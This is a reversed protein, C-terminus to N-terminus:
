VYLGAGVLQGLDGPAMGAPDDLGVDAAQKGVRLRLGGPQGGPKSVQPPRARERHQRRRASRGIRGYGADLYCPAQRLRDRAQGRPRGGHDGAAPDGGGHDGCVPQQTLGGPGSTGDPLADGHPV